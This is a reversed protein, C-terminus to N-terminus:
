KTRYVQPRLRRVAQEVETISAARALMALLRQRRGQTQEPNAPQKDGFAAQSGVRRTEQKKM